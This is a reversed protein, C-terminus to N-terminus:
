GSSTAVMRQVYDFIKVLTPYGECENLTVKLHVGEPCQNMIAELMEVLGEGIDTFDINRLIVM